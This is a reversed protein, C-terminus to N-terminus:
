QIDGKGTVDDINGLEAVAITQKRRRSILVAVDLLVLPLTLGGPCALYRPRWEPRFKEKFARLGEFGYIQEGHQFILNGAKHWAPALPHGELGSLPAMGLSFWKFGQEKGWLLLQVFLYDMQGRPADSRHRMLDVSLEHKQASQWINAFAVIRGDHRIVAIDFRALYAPDFHGVSFQKEVAGKAALWDDSIERLEPILPALDASAVVSFALGQREAKKSSQRLNARAGGELSFAALDILAEEGLKLLSLGLDLYRPLNHAAVEYFVPKGGRRDVLECFRWLLDVFREANGVPDGMVIWTAGQVDYMLFADREPAVLFQKDGTLALNAETAQAESVIRQVDPTIEYSRSQRGRAPRLLLYAGFGGAAVIVLLSARLFRPADGSYAVQWWLANSYDVQKYALYGVWISAACAIGVAVLAAPSPEENLLSSQRYFASRSLLALGLVIALVFAEEWDLGKALSVVIGCALVVVCLSWAADLRRYLGISLLLLFFGAVSGLLHSAEIFPLPIVHRLIDMRGELAPTAGSVLLVIGGAFVAIAIVPPTLAHFVPRALQAATSIKVLHPRAERLALLAAALVFPLAYYLCRFLLLSALLSHPPVQPLALLMGAELVGLGGPIHSIFEAVVILSFLGTFAVLSMQAEPPLLVWLAAASVLMDTAGLLIQLATAPVGPLKLSWGMIALPEPRWWQYALFAILLLFLCIGALRVVLPALAFIGALFEPEAVMSASAVGALGLWFSLGAIIAIRGIDAAPLGFSGYIRFRVATGTLAGLGLTQSMASAVFGAYAAVKVPVKESISCLAIVDYTMLVSYSAATLLLSLALARWSTSWFSANIDAFTVEALLAHIFALSLVFLVGGAIVPAFRLASTLRGRPQAASHVENSLPRDM